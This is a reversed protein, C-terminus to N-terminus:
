RGGNLSALEDVAALWERAKDAHAKDVHVDGYMVAGDGRDAAERYTELLGRHFDVREQDPTYVRNVVPVHSPHLVIQGRFGMGRSSISFQELGDLDHIREWLGTLPHRDAAKTALMIKTRHFLSETGEPTWEYGVARAIDAHEATPGIMAGVRPSGAAIEECNQIGHITEVPVIYELGSVGASAEFHDVLTDYRILDTASDIKPAFVGNLGPVVVQELDQGTLRTNLPNVRVLIGLAPFQAALEQIGEAVQQRAEVKRGDPVSDELDLVVADAGAEAARTYWSTKHGPVFMVTRFPKM